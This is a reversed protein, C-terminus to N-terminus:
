SLAQNTPSTILATDMSDCLPPPKFSHISRKYSRTMDLKLLIQFFNLGWFIRNNLCSVFVVQTTFDCYPKVWVYYFLSICLRMFVWIGLTISFVYFNYFYSHVVTTFVVFYKILRKFGLSMYSYTYIYIYIYIDYRVALRWVSCKLYKNLLYM